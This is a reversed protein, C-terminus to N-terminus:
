GRKAERLNAETTKEALGKHYNQFRIKRKKYTM